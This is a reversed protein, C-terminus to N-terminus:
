VHLFSLSLHNRESLCSLKFTKCVNPLVNMLHSRPTFPTPPPPPPLAKLFPAKLLHPPPHSGGRKAGKGEQQAEVCTCQRYTSAGGRKEVGDGQISIMSERGAASRRMRIRIKLVQQLDARRARRPTHVAAHTHPSREGAHMQNEALHGPDTRIKM